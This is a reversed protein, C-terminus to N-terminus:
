CEHCLEAAINRYPSERSSASQGDPWSAVRRRTQQVPSEMTNAFSWSDRPLQELHNYCPVGRTPSFYASLDLVSAFASGSSAGEANDQFSGSTHFLMSPDGM